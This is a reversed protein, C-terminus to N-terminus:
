PRHNEPMAALAQVDMMVQRTRLISSGLHHQIM